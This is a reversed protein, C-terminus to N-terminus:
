CSNRSNDNIFSEYDNIHSIYASGLQEGVQVSTQMNFRCPLHYFLHPLEYGLVTFWDQDGLTMQLGYRVMMIVM